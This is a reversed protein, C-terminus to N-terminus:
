SRHCTKFQDQLVTWYEPM